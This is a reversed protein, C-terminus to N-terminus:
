PRGGGGAAPREIVRRADEDRLLQQRRWGLYVLYGVYAVVVQAWAIGV